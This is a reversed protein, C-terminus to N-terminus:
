TAVPAYTEWFNVGKTQKSGDLCLRAKYKKIAGPSHDRKRKFQWVTPLLTAGEPLATRLMIEYNSNAVQDNYEKDMALKFEEWDAEKRAEDLYM